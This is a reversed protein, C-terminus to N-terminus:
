FNIFITVKRNRITNRLARNKFAKNLALDIKWLETDFM